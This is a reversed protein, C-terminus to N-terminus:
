KDMGAYLVRARVIGPLYIQLRGIMSCPSMRSVGSGICLPSCSGSGHGMIGFVLVRYMLCHSLNQVCVSNCYTAAFDGM